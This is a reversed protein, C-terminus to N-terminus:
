ICAIGQEGSARGRGRRDILAGGLPSSRAPGPFPHPPPRPPQAAPGSTVPATAARAPQPTRFTDGTATLSEAAEWGRWTELTCICIFRSQLRIAKTKFFLTLSDANPESCLGLIGLFRPLRTPAPSTLSRTHSKPIQPGGATEQPHGMIHDASICCGTQGVGQAGFKASAGTRTERPPPQPHRPATAALVRPSLARTTAPLRSGTRHRFSSSLPTATVEGRQRDRGEEKLVPWLSGATLPGGLGHRLQRLPGAFAPDSRWSRASPGYPTQSLLPLCQTSGWFM